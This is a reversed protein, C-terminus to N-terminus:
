VTLYTSNLVHGCPVCFLHCTWMSCLFPSLCLDVHFVSFTAHGFPVCFLYCVCTWLFCLFPPMDVHFMSRILTAKGVVGGTAVVLISLLCNLYMTCCRCMDQRPGAAIGGGGGGGGGGGTYGKLFEMYLHSVHFTVNTQGMSLAGPGSMYYARLTQCIRARLLSSSSVSSATGQGDRPLLPVYKPGGSLDETLVVLSDFMLGHIPNLLWWVTRQVHFPAYEDESASSSAEKVWLLCEDLYDLIVLCRATCTSTAIEISCTTEVKEESRASPASQLETVLSMRLGFSHAAYNKLARNMRPDDVYESVLHHSSSSSQVSARAVRVLLTSLSLAQDMCAFQEWSWWSMQLELDEEEEEEDEEM